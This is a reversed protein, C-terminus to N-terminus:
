HSQKQPYEIEEILCILFDNEGDGASGNAIMSKRNFFLQVSGPENSEKRKVIDVGM